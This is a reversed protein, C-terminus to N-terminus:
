AQVESLSLEWEEDEGDEMAVKVVVNQSDLSVVVGSMETGEYDFKVTQGKKISKGGSPAEAGVGHPAERLFEGVRPKEKGQYVENVIKVWVKNGVYSKLDLGMKGSPVEVGMAELLNKLRWLAKATLSTNDYITAGKYAGESVKYKWALYPNGESSEKEECSVVELQYNGEPVSRGGSEVGTFDVEVGSRKKPGAM